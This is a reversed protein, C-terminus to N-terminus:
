SKLFSELTDKQDISPFRELLKRFQDENSFAEVEYPISRYADYDDMGSLRNKFYNVLYKFYFKFWGDLRVQFVHTWEHVRLPLDPVGEYFVFPYITIGSVNLFRALKSNHIERVKLM